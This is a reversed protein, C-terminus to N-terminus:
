LHFRATLGVDAIIGLYHYKSDNYTQPLFYFGGTIGASWSANIRYFVAVEPKIGLGFYTKELYNEFVGGISLMIPFEFKGYVPQFMFKAMLPVITYMNEGITTNFGFGLDAGVALYSNLFYMYGIQGVGGVFLKDISPKIPLDVMLSIRMFQDGKQNAKYVFDDDAQIQPREDQGPEDQTQEDEQTQGDDEQSFVPASFFGFGFLSCMACLIFFKKM